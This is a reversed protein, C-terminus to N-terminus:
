LERIKINRFNVTDGHDQLGIYGERADGFEPHDVFKSNRLMEYWEPTWREYELVKEGNQWHEVLSGKIVIRASNWEGHPHANQPQAPLLDYLSGAMRNGDEGRTADPHNENDLIQMEPASWYIPQTPQEIAHYFVGSNGAEEVRWELKLEFDAYQETTIIDGGGEGPHITLMGDTTWGQQPFSEENYGRWGESSSGDFLLQWGEQREEDTLTNHEQGYGM